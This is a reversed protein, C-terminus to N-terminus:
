LLCMKMLGFFTHKNHPFHQNPPFISIQPFPPNRIKPLTQVTYIRTNSNSKKYIIKSFIESKFFIKLNLFLYFTAQLSFALSVRSRRFFRCGSDDCFFIWFDCLTLNSQIKRRFKFFFLRCQTGLTSWFFSRSSARTFSGLEFSFFNFIPTM